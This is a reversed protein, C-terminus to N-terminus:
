IETIQWSPVDAKGESASTLGINTFLKALSGFRVDTVRTSIHLGVGISLDIAVDIFGFEGFLLYPFSRTKAVESFSRIVM